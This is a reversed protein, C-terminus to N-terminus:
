SDELSSNALVYSKVVCRGRPAITVFAVSPVITLIGSSVTLLLTNPRSYDVEEYLMGLPLKHLAMMVAM